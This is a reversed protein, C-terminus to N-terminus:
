IHNVHHKIKTKKTKYSLRKNTFLDKRKVNDGEKMKGLHKTSRKNTTKGDINLFHYNNISRLNVQSLLKIKQRM